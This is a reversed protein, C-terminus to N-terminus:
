QVRSAHEREEWLPSLARLRAVVRATEAVATEVDARRSFRGLSYRLSSEAEHDTLGLARLVYSPERTASSCAAGSAVAVRQSLEALLSGGGVGPFTCSLIWPVREAGEANVTVAEIRGLGERLRRMLAESHHRDREMERAAIRFAEGMGVIQHTALTGSRMGREHGGGHILPALGARPRQRVYLAGAGKPGYVKHASLSLYDVALRRVDLPLKGASQAADVHLRVGAERCVEGIAAIEQVAGTENNVHMLSVLVTDPALARRVQEAPIVSGRDPVLYTVRFGERELARCTDLVARHETRATVVHGGEPAHFRVAGQIALNDAETAGSTWVIERPEAGILAAVQERAHEVAAAAARGWAHDSAPNGFGAGEGLWERMVAAVRHDLPTTAAYDLYVPFRLDSM